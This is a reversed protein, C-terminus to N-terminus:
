GTTIASAARVSAATTSRSTGPPARRRAARCCRRTPTCSRGRQALLPHPRACGARRRLPRRAAGAGREPHTALVVRDFHEVASDGARLEVGDISRRLERVPAALRVAGRFRALLADVYRRSGGEVTRWLPADRLGLLGHNEFFGLFFAAPMSRMDDPSSSWIAAGMPAIFHREFGHGYGGEDLFDGITRRQWRPDALAAQGRPLLPQIDALLRLFGPRLM